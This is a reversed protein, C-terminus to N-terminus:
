PMRERPRGPCINACGNSLRTSSQDTFRTRDNGNMMRITAITGKVRPDEVPLFGVLPILLLSADLLKSDYAQVFSGLEEDYGRACVEDHIRQRVERWRDLPGERGFEEATRIARDMAVWAMVKSHTFHQAGGRVEWIGEDPRQWISELHKVISCTLSWAEDSGNMGGRRAQYLADLVEGYVDLQLQDFAANGVRVPRSDEYGPLWSVEWERLLREGGLLFRGVAGGDLRGTELAEAFGAGGPVRGGGERDEVTAGVLVSGDRWPVVYCRGGWLVRSAPREALRLHLLPTAVAPTDAAHM